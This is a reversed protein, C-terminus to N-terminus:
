NILEQSTLEAIERLQATTWDSRAIALLDAIRSRRISSADPQPEPPPPLSLLPAVRRDVDDDVVELSTVLLGLATAIDAQHSEPKVAFGPGDSTFLVDIWQGTDVKRLNRYRM